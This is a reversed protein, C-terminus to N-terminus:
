EEFLCLATIEARPTAETWTCAWQIGEVVGVSQLQRAGSQSQCYGTIAIGKTCTASWTRTDVSPVGFPSVETKLRKGSAASFDLDDAAVVGGVGALVLALLLRNM